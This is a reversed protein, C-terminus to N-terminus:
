AWGLRRRWSQWPINHWWSSAKAPQPAERTDLAQQIDLFNLLGRLQRRSLRGRRLLEFEAAHRQSLDNLTRRYKTHRFAVPLEPWAKLRYEKM